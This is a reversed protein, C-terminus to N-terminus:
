KTTFRPPSRRAGVGVPILPPNAIASINRPLGHQKQEPETQLSNNQRCRQRRRRQRSRRVIPVRLFATMEIVARGDVTDLLRARAAHRDGRAVACRHHGLAHRPTFGAILAHVDAHLRAAAPAHADHTSQNTPPPAEPAKACSTIFALMAAAAAVTLKKM